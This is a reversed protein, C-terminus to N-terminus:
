KRDELWAATVRPKSVNGTGIRGAQEAEEVERKAVATV